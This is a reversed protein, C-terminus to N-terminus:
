ENIDRVMNQLIYIATAGNLLAGDTSQINVYDILKQLYDLFLEVDANDALKADRLANPIRKSFDRILKNGTGWDRDVTTVLSVVAGNEEAWAEMDWPHIFHKDSLSMPIRLLTALTMWIVGRPNMFHPVAILLVGDNNLFRSLAALTVKPSETHEIVGLAIVFDFKKDSEFKHIDSTEFQFRDGLNRHRCIEIASTAFDLGLYDGNFSSSIFAALRGSGCGVELISTNKLDYNEVIFTIEQGPSDALITFVKEEGVIYSQDYFKILEEISPGIEESM